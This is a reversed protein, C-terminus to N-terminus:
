SPAKERLKIRHGMGELLGGRPPGLAAPSGLTKERQPDYLNVGM